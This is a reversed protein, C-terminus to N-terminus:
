FLRLRMGIEIVPMNRVTGNDLSQEQKTREADLAAQFSAHNPNSAQGYSGTAALDLTARDQHLVGIRSTLSSPWSNGFTHDWGLGFFTPNQPLRVAGVLSGVSDAQYTQGDFTYTGGSSPQGTLTISSHNMVRGASLYFGGGFPHVDVMVARNDAKAFINYTQADISHNIGLSGVTKAGRIVIHSGIGVAVDGGLGLTSGVGGVAIHPTPLIGFIQARAAPAAVALLGLAAVGRAFKTTMQM